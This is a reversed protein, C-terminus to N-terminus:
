RRENVREKECPWPISVGTLEAVRKEVIDFIMMVEYSTIDTTSLKNTMLIQTPRWLLDKVLDKSWPVQVKYNALEMFKEVDYGADNLAEALLGYYVHM